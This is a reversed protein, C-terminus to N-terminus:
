QQAEQETKRPPSSPSGRFVFNNQSGKSTKAAKWLESMEAKSNELGDRIATIGRNPIMVPYAAISEEMDLLLFIGAATWKSRMVLYGSGRAPIDM